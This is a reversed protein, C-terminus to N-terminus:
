RDRVPPQIGQGANSSSSWPLSAAAGGKEDDGAEEILYDLPAAGPNWRADVHVLAFSYGVFITWGLGLVLFVFQVAVVVHVVVIM